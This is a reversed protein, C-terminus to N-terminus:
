ARRPPATACRARWRRPARSGTVSSARLGATAASSSRCRRRRSLAREDASARRARSRARGVRLRFPRGTATTPRPDLRSAASSPTSASTMRSSPSSAVASARSSRSTAPPPAVFATQRWRACPRPARRTRTRTHSERSRRRLRGSSRPRRRVRSTASGRARARTAHRPIRTARAEAARDRTGASPARPWPSTTATASYREPAMPRVCSILLM